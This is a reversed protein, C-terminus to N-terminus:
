HLYGSIWNEVAELKEWGRTGTFGGVVLIFNALCMAAIFSLVGSVSYTGESESHTQRIQVAIEKSKEEERPFSSVAPTNPNGFHSHPSTSDVPSPPSSPPSSPPKLSEFLGGNLVFAKNAEALITM